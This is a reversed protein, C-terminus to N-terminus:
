HRDCSPYILSFLCILLPMIKLAEFHMECRPRLNRSVARNLMEGIMVKSNHGGISDIGLVTDNKSRIFEVEM